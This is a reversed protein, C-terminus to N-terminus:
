AQCIKDMAQILKIIDVNQNADHLSRFVETLIVEIVHHRQEGTIVKVTNHGNLTGVMQGGYADQFNFHTYEVIDRGTVALVLAIDPFKRVPKGVVRTIEIVMGPKINFAKIKEM